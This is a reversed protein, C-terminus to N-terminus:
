CRKSLSFDSSWGYARFPPSPNDRVMVVRFSGTGRADTFTVSGSWLPLQVFQDGSTWFWAIPDGVVSWDAQGDAYVGIWDDSQANCNQFSVVIDEGNEYCEKDTFVVAQCFTPSSTTPAVVTPTGTDLPPSATPFSTAFIPPAATPSSTDFTPPAATPSSTDLIPPPPSISDTANLTPKMTPSATTVLVPSGTPTGTVDFCTDGNFCCVTCCPCDIEDCDAKIVTAEPARDCVGPPMSGTLSTHELTIQVLEALDGLETPVTGNIFTSGLGLIELSSMLGFESPITGELDTLSLDLTQVKTLASFETPLEGSFSNESLVLYELSKLTAIESPISGSFLNGDFNLRTLGKLLGISTPLTGMLQNVPLALRTLAGGLLAIEPPLTGILMNDEVALDKVMGSEDCTIFSWQCENPFTLWGESLTWTSPDSSETTQGGTSFFFVALTWRQVLRPDATITQLQRQRRTRRFPQLGQVIWELALYQPSTTDELAAASDPFEAILLDKVQDIIPSTGSPVNPAATPSPARAVTPSMTLFNPAFTPSALAKESERDRDLKEKFVISLMAIGVALSVLLFLLGVKCWCFRRMRRKEEEDFESGVTFSADKKSADAKDDYHSVRAGNSSQKTQVSAPHGPTVFIYGPIIKGDAGYVARTPMAQNASIVPRNGPSTPVLAPNPVGAKGDGAADQPSLASIPSKFNYEMGPSPNPDQNRDQSYPVKLPSLPPGERKRKDHFWGADDPDAEIKAITDDENETDDYMGSLDMTTENKPTSSNTDLDNHGGKPYGGVFSRDDQGEEQGPMMLNFYAREPDDSWIVNQDIVADTYGYSDTTVHSQFAESYGFTDTTMQSQSAADSM